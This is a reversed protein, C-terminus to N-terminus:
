WLRAYRGWNKSDDLMLGESAIACEEGQDFRVLFVLARPPMLRESAIAHEEGNNVVSM